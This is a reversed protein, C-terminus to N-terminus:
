NSCSLVRPHHTDSQGNPVPWYRGVVRGSRWAVAEDIGCGPTRAENVVVLRAIETVRSNGSRTASKSPPRTESSDVSSFTPDSRVSAFLRDRTELIPRLLERM